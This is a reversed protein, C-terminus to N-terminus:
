MKIFQEIMQTMQDFDPNFMGRALVFRQKAEKTRAGFKVNPSHSCLNFKKMNDPYYHECSRLGYVGYDKNTPPNLEQGHAFSIVHYKPYVSTVYSIQKTNPKPKTTYVIMRDRSNLRAQQKFFKIAAEPSVSTDNASIIMFLPVPLKTEIFHRNARILDYAEGAASYASSTYGYHDSKQPTITRWTRLHKMVKTLSGLPTISVGPSSLIIGSLKSGIPNQYAQNITLAGGMSYGFMFVHDAKKAIDKLSCKVTDIWQHYNVTTMDGVVTGHGPLTIARVLIGQKALASALARFRNPSSNYGHIMLVATKYHEKPNNPLQFPGNGAIIKPNVDLGANKRAISTSKNVATKYAAFSTYDCASVAKLGSPQHYPKTDQQGYRYLGFAIAIIVVLLTIIKKM